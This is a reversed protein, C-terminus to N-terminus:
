LGPCEKWVGAQVLSQAGAELAALTPLSPTGSSPALQGSLISDRFAECALALPEARDGQIVEVIESKEIPILNTRAIDEPHTGGAQGLRYAYRTLARKEFRGEYGLMGHEGVVMLSAKKEPSLWSLYIHATIDRTLRLSAW